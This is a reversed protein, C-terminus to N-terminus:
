LNFAVLRSWEDRRCWARGGCMSLTYACFVKVIHSSRLCKLSSSYWVLTRSTSKCFELFPVPLLVLVLCWANAPTGSLGIHAPIRTPYLMQHSAILPFFPCSSPLVFCFLASASSKVVLFSRVWIHLSTNNWTLSYLVADHWAGNNASYANEDGESWGIKRM